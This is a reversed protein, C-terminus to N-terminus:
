SGIKNDCVYNIIDKSVARVTRGDTDFVVDALERYTADRAKRLASLTEEPNETQLLPRRRDRATRALQQEVSADLFAVTGRSALASRNEPRLIVGGGTALVINSLKTLEDLVKSERARFGEEGEIDFIWPIDAGTRSEIEQDTDYFDMGLDKAVYRGISSKGAGMPGILFINPIKKIM